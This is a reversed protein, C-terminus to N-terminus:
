AAALAIAAPLSVLILVGGLVSKRRTMMSPSEVRAGAAGRLAAGLPSGPDRRAPAPIEALGARPLAVRARRLFRARRRGLVGRGAGSLTLAPPTAAFVLLWAALTSWIAVKLKAAVLAASTSPRTAIFPTMGYSDGGGPNSKSLTAGAFAAVIPPTLLVGELVVLVLAKTGSRAAVFLLALEFPLLLAVLAPLSLGHRRWEFWAQA